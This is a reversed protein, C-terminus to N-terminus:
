VFWFDVPEEIVPGAELVPSKHSNVKPVFIWIAPPLQLNDVSVLVMLMRLYSNFNAGLSRYVYFIYKYSLQLQSFNRFPTPNDQM